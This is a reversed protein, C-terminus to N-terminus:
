FPYTDEYKLFHHVPICFFQMTLKKYKWSLKEIQAYKRLKFMSEWNSCVKEIQVYKRLKFMSEWNSCVKEIQVYKRLKLMSNIFHWNAM